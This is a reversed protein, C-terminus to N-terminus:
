KWEGSTGNGEADVTELYSRNFSGEEYRQAVREGSVSLPGSIVVRRGGEGILKGDKNYMSIWASPSPLIYNMKEVAKLEDLTKGEKLTATVNFGMTLPLQVDTYEKKFDAGSIKESMKNGNTVDLYELNFDFYQLMDDTTQFCYEVVVKAIKNASPDDGSPTDGSASNDKQCATFALSCCLVAALTMMTKKM